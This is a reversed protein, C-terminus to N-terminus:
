LQVCSAGEFLGIDRRSRTVKVDQRRLLKPVNNYVTECRHTSQKRHILCKKVCKRRGTYCNYALKSNRSEEGRGAEGRRKEGRREEQFGPM